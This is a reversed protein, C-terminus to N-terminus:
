YIGNYGGVINIIRPLNDPVKYWTYLFENIFISIIVYDINDECKFSNGSRKDLLYTNIVSETNGDKFVSITNISIRIVYMNGNLCCGFQNERIPLRNFSGILNDDLLVDYASIMDDLRDHESKKKFVLRKDISDTMYTKVNVKDILADRPVEKVIM